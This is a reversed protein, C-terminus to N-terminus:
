CTLNRGWYPYRRALNNHKWEYKFVDLARQKRARFKNHNVRLQHAMERDMDRISRRLKRGALTQRAQYKDMEWGRKIRYNSESEEDFIRHFRDQQSKALQLVQQVYYPTSRLKAAYSSIDQLGYYGNPKSTVSHSSGM